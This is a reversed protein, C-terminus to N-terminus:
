RQDSRLVITVAYRDGRMVSKVYETAAGAEDYSTRHVLFAPSGVTAHLMEAEYKELLITEYRETASTLRIGHKELIQYLSESGVDEDLLQPCRSLPIHATQIGFPEGDALRLREIQIVPTGMEIGLQEALSKSALIVERRLLVGGPRKGMQRMQESFSNLRAPGQQIKPTAVFTGKGQQRYLLGEAVLGSIAQKVTVKSVQYHECMEDETPDPHGAEM